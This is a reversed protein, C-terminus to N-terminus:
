NQDSAYEAPTKNYVEKFCKTFYSPTNFGVSYAVESITMGSNELLPLSAKLRETRIFESTSLNTLAKLKRHLQMRSMGLAESFTESKFEPDTIHKDIVQQLQELFQEDYSTFAIEKPSLYLHQSYKKRLELRSVLKNTVKQKLIEANFPKTIYDDAKSQLGELIATDGIKATLLFIPIHSTRTDKKLENCMEVGDKVPMMVDSIILDPIHEIAMEVAELGNVAELITANESFLSVIYKRIELNDEVILLVPIEESNIEFIGPTPATVFDYENKKPVVLNANYKEKAIPLIATFVITKASKRTAKISGKSLTVLEKILALGVGVGQTNKDAQFFRVFLKEMDKSSLTQNDNEVEIHLYDHRKEAIFVIASNEPAYKVANSLLNSVVKELVDKDYWANNIADLRSIIDIGKEKAQLTFAELIQTIQPTLDQQTVHLSVSGEELKSLDLLQNVLRLMRQSSGEIVQLAKKDNTTLGSKSILQQVPGSILTLPTRFEHSINTYLKSKLEDLKKLRETEEHELRLQLQMQWRSKLYHYVVFIATLALLVYIIKAWINFYWPAKITFSYTAPIDSWVEDYNSSVVKFTYDGPPLKAYHAFNTTTAKSWVNDYNELLYKYNNREPQSFHLGAFTFSINNQNYSYSANQILPFTENFIELGTIDTKPKSTNFHINKPQFWNMGKLGGFYLTGDQDKFHAGTNFEFSQLGDYMDYNVVTPNMQQDISFKSLGRNSSLWFNGSDDPLIGYIVNNPLGDSTTFHHIEESAVDFAYLGQGNTGIWLLGSEYYLSKINQFPKQDFREFTESAISFRNIGNAETAIWLEGPEGDIIARITNSSISKPDESTQFQKLSGVETNFAILGDDGTGLWIQENQDKHITWITSAELAPKTTPNYNTIKGNKLMSLGVDQFGMYLVHKDSLLSMIRNSPIKYPPAADETYASYRGQAPTYATLGKGSTGIWITHDDTVTIARVVDINAFSPTQYNTLVNFKNLNEDFYSLGAGDTGLWITGTYDQYICLIDNYHIATPNLSEPTFHVIEESFFDLLYAGDGYTGVWLRDKSDVLLSEINLDTPLSKSSGFGLFPGLYDDQETKKFLGHGFSGVWLTQDETTAISSFNISSNTKKPAISTYLPTNPPFLYVDESTAVVTNGNYESIAYVDKRIDKSHFVQLTDSADIKYLGNGFTGIWMKDYSDRFISGANIFEPIVTFANNTRDLKQLIGNITIIYIENNKDVFVKGLRSYTDRTIDEFFAQYQIFQKGDYKNLGDQTAFWLYGTSDQAISVVSNQSLGDNVSLHNFSIQRQQQAFSALTAIFISLTIYKKM